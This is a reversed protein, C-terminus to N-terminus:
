RLDLLIRLKGAIVRGEEDLVGEQKTWIEEFRSRVYSELLDHHLALQLILKAMAEAKKADGERKSSVYGAAEFLLEEALPVPMGATPKLIEPFLTAAVDLLGSDKDKWPRIQDWEVLEWSSLAKLWPLAQRFSYRWLLERSRGIPSFAGDNTEALCSFGSVGSQSLVDLENEWRMGDELFRRVDGGMETLRGAENIGATPQILEAILADSQHRWGEFAPFREACFLDALVQRELSELRDLGTQWSSWDGSNPEGGSDLAWSVGWAELEVRAQQVLDLRLRPPLGADAALSWVGEIPLYWETQVASEAGAAFSFSDGERQELRELSLSWRAWAQELQSLPQYPLLLEARM